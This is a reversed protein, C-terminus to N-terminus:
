PKKWHKSKYVTERQDVFRFISSEWINKKNADCKANANLQNYVRNSIYTNYGIDRIESLKASLSAVKEFWILDNHNRIGSRVARVVGSDIGTCNRIQIGNSSISKFKKSAAPQIIKRVAWHIERGCISASSNKSNGIFVGMVRDGDFSRVHGGHKVILRTAADLFARIIKATTRWQCKKALMASGALDTYLFAAEIKVAGNQLTVDATSPVVRGVRQQFTTNFLTDIRKKLFSEDTAM